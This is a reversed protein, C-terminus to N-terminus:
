APSLVLGDERLVDDVLLRLLNKRMTDEDDTIAVDVGKVEERKVDIPLGEFNIDSEQLINTLALIRALADESVTLGVMIKISM